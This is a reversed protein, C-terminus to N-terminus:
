SLSPEKFIHLYQLFHQIPNNEFEITNLISSTIQAKCIQNQKSIGEISQRYFTLDVDAKSILTTIFHTCQYTSAICILHAIDKLKPIIIKGEKISISM